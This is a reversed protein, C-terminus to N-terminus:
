SQLVAHVTRTCIPNRAPPMVNQRQEAFAPAGAFATMTLAIFLILTKM